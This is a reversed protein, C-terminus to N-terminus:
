KAGFRMKRLIAGGIRTVYARPIKSGFFAICKNKWGTVVIVKGGALAEFSLTVVEESSMDFAANVRGGRMPPTSFGARKFFNSRTPGPCIALARVRTERLDENLALTWNLVFAKTAGYTALFPTPQFSATSAINMIAGGRDLLTPLLRASLDVVARINWDIMNLHKSFDRDQFPGYDGFGSNNILLLEGAPAKTLIALLKEVAVRLSQPNSLDTTLHHGKEGLFVQPESRSLNCLVADPNLKRTAKIFSCGIGSSGGTVVIVSFRNLAKLLTESREPSPM